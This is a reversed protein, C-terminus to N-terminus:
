KLPKQTTFTLMKKVEPHDSEMTDLSVIFGIEQLHDTIDKGFDTYVLSRGGIGNGHYHPQELFIDEDTTTDVRYNTKARMPLHVPITFIHYGAPKLVRYIEAFAIWPRRVHEMIDSSLILDFSDDNYTLAELSQCVVGDKEEGYNVDDWYFSNHYNEFDKFLERFPGIVGPEYIHMTNFQTVNVLETLNLGQYNKYTNLISEAQGRYRLSARCKECQYGERFSPNNKKFEGIHGCVACHGIYNEM